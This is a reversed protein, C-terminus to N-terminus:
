SDRERNMGSKILRIKELGAETLHAKNEILEAARKFDAFDLAKIGKILYKDFFPIIKNLNDGFRGVIFEGIDTNSKPYYNGCGLYGELSKMLKADRSHQSLKFRLTAGLGTKTKATYVDILFCGEGSM